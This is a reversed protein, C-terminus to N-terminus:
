TKQWKQIHPHWKTYKNDGIKLYKKTFLFDAEKFM